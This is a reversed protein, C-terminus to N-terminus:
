SQVGEVLWDIKLLDADSITEGAPVREVGKQDKIPGTFPHLSGDIIGNKVADAAQQVDEPVKDNYPSIQILGEKLGWWKDEPEWTGDLVKNVREIYYPGWDYVIASLHANPAFRSMDSAQGFAYAGRSEAVQMAAPSDVHQVIVDAGGDILAKAADAEKGPDYWTNLWIVKVKIDPNVKQAALTFANIGMIVEPIPFSAVYGIVGSKSMHGAVTGHVARGEHFRGNYIGVNPAKMYGTAHEFKAKPFQRAVRITPQMFGFSTAFILENGESALQRIVRESDPGEKVNEVFTVKVRDGFEKEVAQRAQDHSYSYGHDGIPGVYVFGIKLPDQAFAMSGSALVLAAAGAGILLSRRSIGRTSVEPVIIKSSSM